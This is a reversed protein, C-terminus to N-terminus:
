ELLALVEAGVVQTLVLLHAQAALLDKVPQAPAVRSRIFQAVVVLAVVLVLKALM